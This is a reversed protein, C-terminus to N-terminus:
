HCVPCGTTVQEHWGNDHDTLLDLEIEIAKIEAETNSILDMLKIKLTDLRGFTEFYEVSSLAGSHEAGLYKM